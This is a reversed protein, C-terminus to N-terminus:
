LMCLGCGSLPSTLFDSLWNSQWNFIRCLLKIRLSATRPFTKIATKYRGYQSHLVRTYSQDFQVVPQSTPHPQNHYCFVCNVTTSPCNLFTIQKPYQHTQQEARTVYGNGCSRGICLEDFPVSPFFLIKSKEGM